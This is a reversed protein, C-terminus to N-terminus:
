FSFVHQDRASNGTKYLSTCRASFRQFTTYWTRFHCFTTIEAEFLRNQVFENVKSFVALFHQAWYRFVSNHVFENVKGVFPNAWHPFSLVPQYRASNATKYLSTCNLLFHSLLQAGLALIVFGASGPCFVSNQVFEYVKGFIVVFTTRGNDLILFRASRPSFERNQVFEHM